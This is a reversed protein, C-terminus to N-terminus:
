FRGVDFCKLESFRSYAVGFGSSQFGLDWVRFGCDSVSGACEM